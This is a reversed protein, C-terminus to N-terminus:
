IADCMAEAQICNGAPAAKLVQCQEILSLNRPIPKGQRETMHKKKFTPCCKARLKETHDAMGAASQPLFTQFDHGPLLMQLCTNSDVKKELM